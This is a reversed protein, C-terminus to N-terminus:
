PYDKGEFSVSLVGGSFTMKGPGGRLVVKKGTLELSSFAAKAPIPSQIADDLILELGGEPGALGEVSAADGGRADFTYATSSLSLDYYRTKFNAGSTEVLRLGDAVRWAYGSYAYEGANQPFTVALRVDKSSRFEEMRARVAASSKAVVENAIKLATLYSADSALAAATQEPTEAPVGVLGSFLSFVSEGKEVRQRWDPIRELRNMMVICQQAGTYYLRDSMINSASDEPVKGSAIGTLYALIWARRVGEAGNDGSSADEIYRATGELTEQDNTARGIEPYRSLLLRRMAVFRRYHEDKDVSAGSALYMDEMFGIALAEAPIDAPIIGTGDRLPAFGTQYMHFLEHTITSVKEWNDAGAPFRFVAVDSGAYPYHLMFGTKIGEFVNPCSSFATTGPVQMPYCERPVRSQWAASCRSEGGECIVVPYKSIDFGPWMGRSVAPASAYLRLLNLFEAKEPSVKVPGAWAGRPLFLLALALASLVFKAM